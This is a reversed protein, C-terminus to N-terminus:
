ARGAEAGAQGQAHHRARRGGARGLRVRWPKAWWSHASARTPPAAVADADQQLDFDGLWVPEGYGRRLALRSAELAYNQRNSAFILIKATTETPFAFRLADDTKLTVGSMDGVHGRLARIRGKESVCSPSRSACWRRKKSQPRTTSPRRPSVRAGSASIPDQDSSVKVEKIEAAITKWQKDTSGILSKVTNREERRRTRPASEMEELRCLNRLLM